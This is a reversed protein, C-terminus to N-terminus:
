KSMGSIMRIMYHLESAREMDALAAAGETAYRSRHELESIRQWMLAVIQDKSEDKSKPM